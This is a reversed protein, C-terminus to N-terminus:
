FISNFFDGLKGLKTEVKEKPKKDRMWPEQYVGDRTLRFGRLDQKEKRGKKGLVSKAASLLMEKVNESKHYDRIIKQLERNEFFGMSSVPNALQIVRIKTKKLVTADLLLEHGPIRKEFSYFGIAAERRICHRQNDIVDPLSYEVGECQEKAPIRRVVDTWQLTFIASKCTGLLAVWTNQHVWVMIENLYKWPFELVKNADYDPLSHTLYHVISASLPDHPDHAKIAGNVFITAEQQGMVIISKNISDPLLSDITSRNTLMQSLMSSQFESDYAGDAVYITVFPKGRQPREHVLFLRFRFFGACSEQNRNLCNPASAIALIDIRNNVRVPPNLKEWSQSKSFKPLLAPLTKSIAMESETAKRHPHTEVAYNSGNTLSLRSVAHHEKFDKELVFVMYDDRRLEDNADLKRKMDKEKKRM